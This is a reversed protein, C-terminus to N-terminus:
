QKKHSAARCVAVTIVIIIGIATFVGLMGKAMYPLTSFFASPDFNM